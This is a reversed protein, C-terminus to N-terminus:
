DAGRNARAESAPNEGGARPADKGPGEQAPNVGPTAAARDRATPNRGEGGNGGVGAANGYAAVISQVLKHRVIDVQDLRVFSIGPVGELKRVADILGSDAPDPLDVQSEDGTVIMRSNQGMRTLFMLMQAATTNQAEDLIIVSDNLTRGRMFALPVVEVIDNSMFRRLQDFGMMDQLADLLPRLYPNVKAQLDGPLYGLKEGAEVAPRVLTIRKIRGAKLASVAVATALYTKGTGAPGLCFVLDHHRMAEVYRKQGDTKPRVQQSHSYVPIAEGLPSPGGGGSGGNGGAGNAATGNVGAGFGGTEGNRFQNAILEGVEETSLHTRTALRRQMQELVAAAREVGEPHGLVRLADDRATIQVRLEQRILRLHKDQSGFLAQRKAEDDLTIVIEL